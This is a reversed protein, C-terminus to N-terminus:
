SFYSDVAASNVKQASGGYKKELSAQRGATSGANLEEYADASAELNKAERELADLGEFGRGSGVGASSKAAKERLRAGAVRAGLGVKNLEGKAVKAELEELQDKLQTELSENKALEAGLFDVKAQAGAKLNLAEAVNAKRTELSESTDAAASKAIGEFKIVNAKAEDLDSQLVNNAQILNKIENKFDSTERKADQISYEADRVPDALAAGAQDSASRFVNRISNSLKGRGFLVFLVIAVLILIALIPEM